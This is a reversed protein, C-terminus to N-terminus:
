VMDRDRVTASINLAMIQIIMSGNYVCQFGFKPIKQPSLPNPIIGNKLLGDRAAASLRLTVILRWLQNFPM